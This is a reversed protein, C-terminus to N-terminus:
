EWILEVMCRIELAETKQHNGKVQTYRRSAREKVSACGPNGSGVWGAGEKVYTRCTAMHQINFEGAEIRRVHGKMCGREIAQRRERWVDNCPEVRQGAHMADTHLRGM